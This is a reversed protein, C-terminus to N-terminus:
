DLLVSLRLRGDHHRRTGNREFDTLTIGDAITVSASSASMDLTGQFTVGDLTGGEFAVAGADVIGNKITLGYKLALVNGGATLTAGTNDLTGGGINVQDNQGAFTAADALYQALTFNGELNITSNTVDFTGSNSFNAFDTLNLTADNVTITGTNVVPGLSADIGLTGNAGVSITGNNTFGFTSVYYSDGQIDLTNSSGVNIAGDNIFTTPNLILTDDQGTEEIVGKNDVTGFGQGITAYAYAGNVNVTLNAGLTLVGPDDLTSGDVLTYSISDVGNSYTYTVSTYDLSMNGGLIVTANDLMQSGQFYLDAGSGVDIAGASVGDAGTITLGDLVYATQGYGSMTLAGKFDVGELGVGSLNLNSGDIITGNKVLSGSEFTVGALAASTFDLTQGTNDLTGYINLTNGHGALLNLEATTFAGYLNVTSNAINLTGSGAALDGFDYLTVTASKATITGENSVTFHPTSYYTSGLGITLAGGSQVIIQGGAKNDFVGVDGNGSYPQASLTAGNSVTIVGENQFTVPDIDLIGSVVNIAGKSDITQNGYYFSQLYTRAGSANITVGAGLTLVAAFNQNYGNAAFANYSGEEEIGSGSGSLNITANDLSEADMFNIVDNGGLTMSGAGAGGSGTLTLGNVVTFDGSSAGFTVPGEITVGNFTGGANVISGGNLVITAGTLAAYYGVSLQGGANLTLAGSIDAVGDSITAVGGNNVTLAGLNIQGGNGQLAGGSGLTLAGGVNLAGNYTVEIVGGTEASANYGVTLVGSSDVSLTGAQLDLASAVADAADVNTTQAVDLLISDSIGPIVGGSWNAASDWEGSVGLLEASYASVVFPTLLTNPGLAVGAVNTLLPADINFIWNGESLIPFTIRVLKNSDGLEVSVPAVTVGNPGVMSFDSTTVTTPDLAQSFM